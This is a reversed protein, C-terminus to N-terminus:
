APLSGTPLNIPLCLQPISLSLGLTDPIFNAITNLNISNLSAYLTSLGQTFDYSPLNFNPILPSPMSLQFNFGPFFLAKLDELTPASPLMAMISSLSPFAPLAALKSVELIDAVENVMTFLMSVLNSLYASTTLQLASLLEMDPMGFSPFLPTPVHPLFSFNLPSNLNPLLNKISQILGEPNLAMLDPFSIGPLGPIDPFPISFISKLVDYMSGVGTLLQYSQLQNAFMEIQANVCQMSPWPISPMSPMTPLSIAFGPFDIPTAPM